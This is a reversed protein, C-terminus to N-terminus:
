IINKHKHSMNLSCSRVFNSRQRVLNHLYKDHFEPSSVLNGSETRVPLKISPLLAPASHLCSLYLNYVNPRGAELCSLLEAVAWSPIPWVERRRSTQQRPRAM